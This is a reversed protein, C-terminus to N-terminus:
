SRFVEEIFCRGIILDGKSKILEDASKVAVVFRMNYPNVAGRATKLLSELENLVERYEEM